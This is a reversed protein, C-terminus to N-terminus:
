NAHAILVFNSPQAGHTAIELRLTRPTSPANAANTRWFIQATYPGPRAPKSVNCIACTKVHLLAATDSV